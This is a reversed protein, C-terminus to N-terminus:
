RGVRRTSKQTSSDATESYIFGCDILFKRLSSIRGGDLVGNHNDHLHISTAYHGQKDRYSFHIRSGAMSRDIKIDLNEFLTSVLGFRLGKLYRIPPTDMFYLFDAELRQPVKHSLPHILSSQELM